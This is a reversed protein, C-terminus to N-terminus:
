CRSCLLTRSLMEGLFESRGKKGRRFSMRDMPGKPRVMAGGGQVGYQIPVRHFNRAAYERSSTRVYLQLCEFLWTLCYMAHHEHWTCQCQNM